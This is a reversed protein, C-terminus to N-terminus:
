RKGAVGTYQLPKTRITAAGDAWAWAAVGLAALAALIRWRM